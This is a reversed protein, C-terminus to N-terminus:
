SASPERPAPEPDAGHVGPPPREGAEAPPSEAGSRPEEAPTPQRDASTPPGGFAGGGGGALAPTGFELKTQRRLVETGLLALVTFVIMGIPKGTAPIPQWIFVLLLIAVVAAYTGVPNEDLFPAIWRRAPTAFRSPGAFWACVIIVVGILIVAGAVEVLMQTAISAVASVTPKVSADKALSNAIAPIAIHRALVVALGAVAGSVGVWM